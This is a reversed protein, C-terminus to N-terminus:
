TLPNPTGYSAVIATDGGRPSSGGAVHLDETMPGTPEIWECLGGLTRDADVATGIAVFMADVDAESPATIELSIRHDYWYIVPSLDVETEVMDGTRIVVRGGPSIRAPAEDGPELGFVDAAPLAAKVLARVATLVDLRKSM